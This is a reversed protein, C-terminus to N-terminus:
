QRRFDWTGHRVCGPQHALAVCHEELALRVRMHHVDLKRLELPALDGVNGLALYCASERVRLLEDSAISPPVIQHNPLSVGPFICEREDLSACGDRKCVYVECACM